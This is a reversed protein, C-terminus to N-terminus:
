WNIQKLHLRVPQADRRVDPHLPAVRLLVTGSTALVVQKADPHLDLPNFTLGVHNQVTRPLLDVPVDRNDGVLCPVTGAHHRPRRILSGTGGLGLPSFAGGREVVLFVWLNQPRIVGFTVVHM